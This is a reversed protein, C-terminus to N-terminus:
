ECDICIGRVANALRSRHCVMHCRTCMFEDNLPPLPKRVLDIDALEDVGDVARYDTGDSEEPGSALSITVEDDSGDNSM